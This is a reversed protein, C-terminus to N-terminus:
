DHRCCKTLIMKIVKISFYMILASFLLAFLGVVGLKDIDLSGILENM